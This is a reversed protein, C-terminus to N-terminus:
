SKDQNRKSLEKQLMEAYELFTTVAKENVEKDFNKNGTRLLELMLDLVTSRQRGQLRMFCYNVAAYFEAQSRLGSWYRSYETLGHQEFPDEDGYILRNPSIRLAECLLRIERPGPRNVGREYLSIVASSIGNGDLDVHRTKDALEGQTINANRRAEQLRMGLDAEPEDTLVGFRTPRRAFEEEAERDLLSAEKAIEDLM